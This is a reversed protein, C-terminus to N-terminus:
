GVDLQRAEEDKLAALFQAFLWECADPEAYAHSAGPCIRLRPDANDWGALFGQGTRDREAILICVPGAFRGLGAAM